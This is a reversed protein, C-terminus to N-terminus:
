PKHAATQVRVIGRQTKLFADGKGALTEAGTEDMVIRSDTATKVRTQLEELNSKLDERKTEIQNEIQDTRQGM